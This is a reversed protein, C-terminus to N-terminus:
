LFNKRVILAARQRTAFRLFGNKRDLAEDFVMQAFFQVQEHSRHGQDYIRFAADVVHEVTFARTCGNLEMGGFIVLLVNPMLKPSPRQLSM